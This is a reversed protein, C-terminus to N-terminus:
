ARIARRLLRTFNRDIMRIRSTIQGGQDWTHEWGDVIYTTDRGIGLYRNDRIGIELNHNVWIQGPAEIELSGYKRNEIWWRRSNIPRADHDASLQCAIADYHSVRGGWPERHPPWSCSFGGGPIQTNEFTMQVQSVFDFASTTWNLTKIEQATSMLYGPTGTGWPWEAVQIQGESEWDEYVALAAHECLTKVAQQGTQRFVNYTRPTNDPTAVISYGAAPLGCLTGYIHALIEAVTQNMQVGQIADAADSYSSLVEPDDAMAQYRDRMPLSVIAMGERYEITKETCTAHFIKWWPTALEDAIARAEIFARRNIFFMSTYPGRIEEGDYDLSFSDLDVSAADVVNDKDISIRGGLMQPLYTWRTGDWAFPAAWEPDTAVEATGTVSISDVEIQTWPGMNGQIAVSNGIVITDVYRGAVPTVRVIEYLGDDDQDIYTTYTEADADYVVRYRRWADPAGATSWIVNDADFGDPCACYLDIAETEHITWVSEADFFSSGCLRLFVGFGTAVPFRCRVDFQWDTDRNRPFALGAKSQVWSPAIGDSAAGVRLTGGIQAIYGWSPSYSEWKTADLAAGAFDDSFTGTFEPTDLEVAIRVETRLNPAKFIEAQDFTPYAM